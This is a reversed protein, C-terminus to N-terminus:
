RTRPSKPQLVLEFDTASSGGERQSKASRLDVEKWVPEERLAAAYQTLVTLDPATGRLTVAQDAELGLFQLTMGPLLHKTCNGLLEVQFAYDQRAREVSQISAAIAKVRAAQPELLNIQDQARRLQWWTGGMEVGVWVLFLAMSLSVLLATRRLERFLVQRAQEQRSEVPLLDIELLRPACVVGLLESFSVEPSLAQSIASFAGKFPSSQPDVRHIPLGLNSELRELPIFEFGKSGGSITVQEVPPGVQEKSYAQLTEQFRTTLDEATGVAGLVHRMYILSGNVWVGLDLGERTIDAVLWGAPSSGQVSPWCARHWCGIAESSAVIGTLTLGARQCIRILREVNPRHVVAVLVRTAEGAPGLPKVSTVCEQIPYPLTGDLQYLAMAKLEDLDESPLTFYRTLMEGTSLAGWVERAPTPLSQVCEKLANVATEEDVGTMPRAKMSLLKASGDQTTQAQLLKM